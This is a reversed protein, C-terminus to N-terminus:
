LQCFKRERDSQPNQWSYAFHSISNIQPAIQRIAQMQAELSPRNSIPQGWTGALVPQVRTGAPAMSLVRQVQATICSTNGCTGYSMPHWEINTPFRDWPQLRSDYGGSGVTQNGEPFFVAGATIGQQQAPYVALSLFDLIGQTAHAVSLQWLQTQLLSQIQAPDFSAIAGSSVRGQWLPEPEDPYLNAIAVVDNATIHGQSLYRRILDQGSRNLARGYLAQQSASGYVWLDQVRSAVSAGGEGRPYRIYDFLMGDPRRRAIAEVMYYYESKAQTNYPDVFVEDVGLGGTNMGLASRFTLSNQGYGNRALVSQADPRQAYTYGFNLTFLWAYVKLGREHGKAIAEALLDRREYGPTRLVSQWPTNNEAAPLLVQGNYFVEVYVQNYGRNVIDDLLAELAGPRADCPYLRLWIAQNRLWHQNRCQQVLQAHQGLMTKYRDNAARDGQLAAQRLQEKQTAVDAALQCYANTQATAVASELLPSLLSFSFAIAWGGINLAKFKFKRTSFIHLAAM